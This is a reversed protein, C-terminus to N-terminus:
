HDDHLTSYCSWLFYVASDNVLDLTGSIHAGRRMGDDRWFYRKRCMLKGSQSLRVSQNSPAQDADVFGAVVLKSFKDQWSEPAGGPSALGIIIRYAYKQTWNCSYEMQISDLLYFLILESINLFWCHIGMFCQGKASILVVILPPWNKKHYLKMIIWKPGGKSAYKQSWNNAMDCM